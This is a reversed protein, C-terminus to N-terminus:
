WTMAGRAAVARGTTMTSMSSSLRLLRPWHGHGRVTTASRTVRTVCIPATAIPKSTTNESGSRLEGASAASPKRPRSSSVFAFSLASGDFSATSASAIPRERTM